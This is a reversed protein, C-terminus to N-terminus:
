KLGRMIIRPDTMKPAALLKAAAIKRFTEVPFKETSDTAAAEIMAGDAIKEAERLSNQVDNAMSEAPAFACAQSNDISNNKM